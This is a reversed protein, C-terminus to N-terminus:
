PMKVNFVANIDSDSNNLGDRLFPRPGKRFTGLEVYAAYEVNSGIQVSDDGVLKSTISDRLKGTDVPCEEKCHSVVLEGAIKLQKRAHKKVEDILAKDFNPNNWSM